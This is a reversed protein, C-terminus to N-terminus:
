PDARMVAARRETEPTAQPLLGTADTFSRGVFRDAGTQAFAAGAAVQVVQAAGLRRALEAMPEPHVVLVRTVGAPLLSKGAQLAAVAGADLTMRAM